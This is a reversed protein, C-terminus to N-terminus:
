EKKIRKVYNWPLWPTVDFSALADPDYQLLKRDPNLHDGLRTRTEDIVHQAWARSHQKLWLVPNDISNAKATEMLTFWGCMSDAFEPSQKFGSAARLVTLTRVARESRNTDPVLRPDDLFARLENQSNLYYVVADSITANKGPAAKYKGATTEEAYEKGLRQMIKDIADMLPRASAQRGAHIRELQQEVSENERRKYENTEECYISSLAAGVASLLRFPDHARIKAAIAQPSESTTQLQGLERIATLVLRRWHILCVQHRRPKDSTGEKSMITKYPQYGDSVLLTPDWNGKAEAIAESSRGDLRRYLAVQQEEHPLSNQVMVYGQKSKSEVAKRSKGEHQLIDLPTEDVIGGIQGHLTEQLKAVMPALAGQQVMRHANRGLTDSGIQENGVCLVTELRNVPIGRTMAVGVEIALDQSISAQPTVPIPANHPMHLHRQGCECVYLDYNTNLNRLLEASSENLTRLFNKQTGLHRWSDSKGCNPCTFGDTGISCVIAADLNAKVTQRGLRQPLDNRSLATKLPATAKCGAAIDNCAQVVCDQANGQSALKAGQKTTEFTDALVREQKGVSRIAGEAAKWLEDVKQPISRANERLLKKAKETGQNKLYRLLGSIQDAGSVDFQVELLLEKLVRLREHPLDVLDTPLLKDIAKNLLSLVTALTLDGSDIRDEVRKMTIDARILQEEAQQRKKESLELKKQSQRLM